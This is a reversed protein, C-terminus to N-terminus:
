RRASRTPRVLRPRRSTCTIFTRGVRPPNGTCDLRASPWRLAACWAVRVAFTM